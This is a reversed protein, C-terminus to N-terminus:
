LVLAVGVFAQFRKRMKNYVEGSPYLNRFQVEARVIANRGIFTKLGGGLGFVGNQAVGKNYGGEAESYSWIGGAAILYVKSDSDKMEAIHHVLNITSENYTRSDKVTFNFNVSVDAEILTSKSIYLGLRPRVLFNNTSSADGAASEGSFSVSGGLEVNGAHQGYGMTILGSTLLILLGLRCCM